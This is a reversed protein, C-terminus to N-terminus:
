VRGWDVRSPSCSTPGVTTLLNRGNSSSDNCSHTIAVTTLACRFSVCSLCSSELPVLQLSVQSALTYNILRPRWTDLNLCLCCCRWSKCSFIYISFSLTLTLTLSGSTHIHPTYTACQITHPCLLGVTFTVRVTKGNSSQSVVRAHTAMATHCTVTAVIPGVPWVNNDRAQWGRWATSQETM